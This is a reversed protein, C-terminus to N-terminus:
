APSGPPTTPPPDITKFWMDGYLPGIEYGARFTVIGQDGSDWRVGDGSARFVGGRARVTFRNGRERARFGAPLFIAQASTAATGNLGEATLVVDSGQRLLYLTGTWGNVLLASVNRVGSDYELAALRDRAGKILAGVATAFDERDAM